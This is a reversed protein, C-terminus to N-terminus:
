IAGRKRNRLKLLNKIPFKEYECFMCCGFNECTWLEYDEFDEVFELPQNCECCIPIENM